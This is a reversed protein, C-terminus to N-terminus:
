AMKKVRTLGAHNGVRSSCSRSSVNGHKSGSEQKASSNNNVIEADLSIVDVILLDLCIAQFAFRV